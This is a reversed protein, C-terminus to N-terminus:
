SSLQRATDRVCFVFSRRGTGDSWRTVPKGGFCSTLWELTAPALPRGTAAKVTLLRLAHALHDEDDVPRAVLVGDELAVGVDLTRVEGFRRPGGLVREALSDATQAGLHEVVRAASHVETMLGDAAGEGEFGLRKAVRPQLDIHLRDGRRRIEGHLAERMALLLEGAAVLEPRLSTEGVAATLWMAHALRALGRHGRKSRSRTVM